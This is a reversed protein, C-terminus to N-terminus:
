ANEVDQTKTRHTIAGCYKCQYTCDYVQRLGPIWQETSGTVNGRTDKTQNTVKINITSEDILTQSICKLANLKKCEPCRYKIGHYLFKGGVVVILVVLVF